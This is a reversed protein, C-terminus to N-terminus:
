AESRDRDILALLIKLRKELGVFIELFSRHQEDPDILAAPDPFSWHIQEPDGPFVPCSERARDCVTIIYDFEQGRFQDLHKSYLGSTDIEESQLREIAKPHVTAPKPGASFVKVRTGGWHRLMAEAMQSRASNHTCLFLVRTPPQSSGTTQAAYAPVPDALLPHLSAAAAKYLTQFRELDVSYYVDRADASSRREQVLAAERLLRLHYSILNMPKKLRAVLEHVRYDSNVLTALLNWRVEHAVLKLIAPLELQTLTTAMFKGRKYLVLQNL